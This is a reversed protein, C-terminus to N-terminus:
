PLNFVTQALSKLRPEIYTRVTTRAKCEEACFIVCTEPVLYAFPPRHWGSVSEQYCLIFFHVEAGQTLIMNGPKEYSVTEVKGGEHLGEVGKNRVNYIDFYVDDDHNDNDHLNYSLM